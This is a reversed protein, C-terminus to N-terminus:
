GGYLLKTCNSSIQSGSSLTIPDTALRDGNGDTVYSYNPTLGNMYTMLEPVCIGYQHLKSNMSAVTVRLNGVDGQLTAFNGQNAAHTSATKLAAIQADAQTLRRTLLRVERNTKSTSPVKTLAVVGVGIGLLALAAIVPVLGRVVSDRAKIPQANSQRVDVYDDTEM